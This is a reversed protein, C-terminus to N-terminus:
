FEYFMVSQCFFFFIFLLVQFNFDVLFFKITFNTSREGFINAYTRTRKITNLLVNSAFSLFYSSLVLEFSISLECCCCCCYLSNVLSHPLPPTNACNVNPSNKIFYFKKQLFFTTQMHQICTQTGPYYDNETVATKANILALLLVAILGQTNFM